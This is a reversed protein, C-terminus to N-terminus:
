ITGRKPAWDDIELSHLLWDTLAPNAAQLERHTHSLYDPMGELLVAPSPPPTGTKEAFVHSPCLERVESWAPVLLAAATGDAPATPEAGEGAQSASGLGVTGLNLSLGLLSWGREPPAWFLWGDAVGVPVKEEEPQKEPILQVSRIEREKGELTDTCKWTLFKREQM